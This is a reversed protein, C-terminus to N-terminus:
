LSQIATSLSPPHPPVQLTTSPTGPHKSLATDTVRPHTSGWPVWPGKVWQWTALCCSGDGWSGWNGLHPPPGLSATHRCHRKCGCRAAAGPSNPSPHPPPDHRPATGGTRTPQTAPATQQALARTRPRRPATVTCHQRRPSPQCPPPAWASGGTEGAASRHACVTRRDTEGDM